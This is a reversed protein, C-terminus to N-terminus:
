IKYLKDETRSPKKLGITIQKRNHAIKRSLRVKPFCDNFNTEINNSFFMIPLMSMLPNLYMVGIVHTLNIVLCSKVSM